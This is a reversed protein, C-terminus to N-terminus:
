SNIYSFDDLKYFSIIYLYFSYSFIAKFALYAYINYTALIREYTGILFGSCLFTISLIL